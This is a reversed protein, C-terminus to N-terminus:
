HFITRDDSIVENSNGYVKRAIDGTWNPRVHRVLRLAGEDFNDPDLYVDVTKSSDM